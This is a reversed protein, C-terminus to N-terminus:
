RGVDYELKTVTVDIDDVDGDALKWVAFPRRQV